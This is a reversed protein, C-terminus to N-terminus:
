YRARFREYISGTDCGWEWNAMLGIRNISLRGVHAYVDKFARYLLPEDNVFVLYQEGDCCLRLRCPRGYYIRNGINTWIADYLDEFGDFKFFTSISAGAYYDARWINLTVYNDPDQYLIFGATCREKQGRATGPPTIVAELDAFDKHVWDLCYATRGPCPEEASGRVRATGDGAVEIVGGGITHKWRQKGVSTIRGELDGGKGAFDDAVVIGSGKRHWFADMCFDEPIRIERPHAEFSAIVGNDKVSDGVLVGVKSAGEFREDMLWQEAVPEGDLYAM